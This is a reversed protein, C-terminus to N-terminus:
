KAATLSIYIAILISCSSAAVKDQLDYYCEDFVASAIRSNM